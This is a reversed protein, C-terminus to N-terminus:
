WVVDFRYGGSEFETKVYYGLVEGIERLWDKVTEHEFAVKSGARLRRMILECLENSVPKKSFNMGFRRLKTGFRIVRKSKSLKSQSKELPLIKSLESYVEDILVKGSALVRVDVVWPYKVENDRVEDPWTPKSSRRWDSVVELVAAFSECLESCGIKGVYVVIHDGVRIKSKLESSGKPTGYIGHEITYRLNEENM